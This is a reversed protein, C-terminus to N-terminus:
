SVLNIASDQSKSRTIQLCERAIMAEEDTPIDLIVLRKGETSIVGDSELGNKENRREDLRANPLIPGLRQITRRRIEASHEGIGATFVLADLPGTLAVMSSAIHQALKYIFMEVALKANCDEHQRKLLARMDYDGNVMGKLGSEKNLDAM